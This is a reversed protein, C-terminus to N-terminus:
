GEQKKGTKWQRRANLEGEVVVWGRGRRVQGTQVGANAGRIKEARFEGRKVEKTTKWASNKVGLDLTRENGQGGTVKEGIPAIGKKGESIGILGQGTRDKEGVKRKKGGGLSRAKASIAPDMSQSIKPARTREVGLGIGSSGRSGGPEKQAPKGM